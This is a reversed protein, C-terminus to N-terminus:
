PNIGLRDCVEFVEDCIAGLGRGAGAVVAVQCDFDIM